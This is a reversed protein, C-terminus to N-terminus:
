NNQHGKDDPHLRPQMHVVRTSHLRYASYWIMMCSERTHLLILIFYSKVRCQEKSSFLMNAMSPECDVGFIQLDSEAFTLTVAGDCVYNWKLHDDTFLIKTTMLNLWNKTFHEIWNWNVQLIAYHTHIVVDSLGCSRLLESNVKKFIFGVSPRRGQWVDRVALLSRKISVLSVIYNLFISSYKRM